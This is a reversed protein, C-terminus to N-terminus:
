EPRAAAAINRTASQLWSEINAALLLLFAVYLLSLDRLEGPECFALFLPFNIAAAIQAHRQIPQPLIRWGRWTTWIILAVPLLSLVPPLLIGYTNELVTGRYFWHGPHSFFFAMQGRWHTEVTGGPNHAFRLRQPLYVAICVLGLAGVGLLAKFRSYRQRLIPYLTPIFLLFSEKNWTGLAAVPLISWWNFRLAFWAALAFFALEPFDYFYGGFSQVYPFLLIFAIPSLVSAAESLGASKCVMHMAYVALLAFLFTAGYVVLYRFFYISDKGVASDFLLDPLQLDDARPPKLRYLKTKLSEPAAQDIWNAITPLMQRYVYPRDATGELMHQFDLDHKITFRLGAERFHWKEYFGYFSASAAAFFLIFCCVRNYWRSLRRGRDSTPLKGLVRQSLSNASEARSSEQTRLDLEVSNM